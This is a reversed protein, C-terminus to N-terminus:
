IVSVVLRPGARRLSAPTHFFGSAYGAALKLRFLETAVLAYVDTRAYDDAGTSVYVYHETGNALTDRRRKAAKM